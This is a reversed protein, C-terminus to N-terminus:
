KHIGYPRIFPTDKPSEQPVYYESPDEPWLCYTWELMALKRLRKIGKDVMFGPLEPMEVENLMDMRKELSRPATMTTLKGNGLTKEM